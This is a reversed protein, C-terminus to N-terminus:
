DNKTLLNCALSCVSPDVKYVSVQFGQTVGDPSDSERRRADARRVNTVSKVPQGVGVADSASM